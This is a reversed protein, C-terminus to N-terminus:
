EGPLKDAGQLIRGRPNQPNSPDLNNQIHDNIRVGGHGEVKIPGSPTDIKTHWNWDIIDKHPDPGPAPGYDWDASAPGKKSGGHVRGDAKMCGGPMPILCQDGAKKRVWDCVQHALGGGEPATSPAAAPAGEQLGTPDFYNVPDSDVYSYVNMGVALGLPDKATWRSSSADYDRAGFRTLLTHPDLIGGAFGFPQFGPNSDQSMTGFEDYDLRQAVAGSTAIDIVLRPSGLHDTIIRYTKGGKEMYEPVNVKTGYIFRSVIKGDGDLEAIPKLQDQYLFGQVLKGNVKKGIRRNAGDIVYEIKTGDPLAVARLNGLVDYDYGTTKGNVTKSLWEGNATHKFTTDGYQLIRDQSDYKGTFAGSQGKYALRNGNEDYDYHSTKSGNKTVDELRGARDYDYAFVDTRGDITETMKIIRGLLDREYKVTYVNKGNYKAAFQKREGFGNYEQATTVKGLKTNKLYGSEPYRELTLDGAAILLGDPDHKFAVPPGDNVRRSIIRFNNDYARTVSGNVTGAWTTTTPLSGDLAFSLTGGDPVTITKLNETKEDFAFTVKGEPITITELHGVKDYALDITKDDLRTLKTLKKDKNYAYSTGSRGEGEKPPSYGETLNVPTYAFTHAPRGPPTLSKLNGNADHEFAIVRGDSLVQKNVRGARDYELRVSRKLPDTLSQIRGENDYEIAVTRAEDGTGSSVQSLRGKADYVFSVPLLGHGESKVVRGQADTTTISKRGAPTQQTVQQKKVDLIRTYTRGNISSRDTLTTLSLPNSVDALVAKRDATVTATLGSPTKMTWTKLLPALMGWRPDAQQQLNTITGDPSVVQRRGDAATEVKTEAGCCCMNLQVEAGGPLRQTLYTTPVKKEATTLGVEYSQITERRTLASFGGTADEDKILRGMDDYSFHAVNGRPDKRTALLGEKGHYTFSMTEAAPNTVSALYGSQPDLGLMTRPGFSAVIAVPNAAADREITTINGDGDEVKDLWGQESYHFRYRLAKIVANQTELHRGFADFRYLETGDESAIVVDEATFGPLPSSLRCVHHRPQDKVNLNGQYGPTTFYLSGDPAGEIGGVGHLRLDASRRRDAVDQDGGGSITTIIGDPAVRRLRQNEDFLYLNGDPAAAIGRFYVVRHRGVGFGGRQGIFDLRAEIAPGGDGLGPKKGGGAVTTIFGDPRVRRVRYFPKGFAAAFCGDYIYLSGDPGVALGAPYTLGATRAPGGDGSFQGQGTGAITTIIGDPGICRVRQNATDAVYLSGDPGMALASPENFKAQSAPGGDGAFDGQAPNQRVSGSWGKPPTGAFTTIAGGADIRRIVHNGQDSVYLAGDPALALGNPWTLRAKAAPGGDGGYGPDGQGAVTTITGNPWIRRICHNYTDAVFVSGDAAIALGNPGNLSAQTAPRGDGGYGPDGQGAVITVNEHGGSQGLAASARRRGDGLYVTRETPGYAHCIDLTWGGLGQNRADWGGILAKYEQILPIEGRSASGTITRGNGPGGFRESQQYPVAAYVYGIRITAQQAAPLIRGQSDKGDWTFLYTQNPETSFSKNFRQGAVFVELEVRKLGKPPESGTLFIKLSRAAVRGPVRDSRYHLAFPTGIVPVSEGLVQSQIYIVSSAPREDQCPLPKPDGQPDPQNPAQAGAGLHNLDGNSFHSIPVRWLSQGPKYSLALQRREAETVGLKALAEAGAAKATGDIDMEALGNNLAVIKIVRGSESAIWAGKDGDYYGYPVVIGAPFNLFNDVYFIAPKSLLVDKGGVKIGGNAKVEDATLEVAYTYATTPPLAAPMAAPGSPGVTYETLRVHLESLKKRAGDRLFMEAETGQMIFLTAQREGDGDKVPSGQAVQIPAGAKLDILSTKTDVPILVVDPLWGYDQWKAVLQRCAPLFGPKEYNVCLLGGGNVALDFVGDEGTQTSGFEPHHQVTIRVAALAEGARSQIRGRLVAARRAAITGEKVGVQKPNDGTYLFETAKALSLSAPRYVTPTPAEPLPNAVIPYPAPAPEDRKTSRLAFYGGAIVLAVAVISLTVRTKM